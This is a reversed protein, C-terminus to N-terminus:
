EKGSAVDWLRVVSDRGGTALTRGDGSLALALVGGEHGRWHRVERRTAVDWVRILGEQGATLLTRGDPTFAVGFVAAEHPLRAPVAASGPLVVLFEILLALFTAYRSMVLDELFGEQRKRRLARAAVGCAALLTARRVIAENRSKLAGPCEPRAVSRRGRRSRP